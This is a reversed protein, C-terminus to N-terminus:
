CSSSGLGVQEKLQADVFIVKVYKKSEFETISIDLLEYFFVTSTQPGYSSQLMTALTATPTRRVVTRSNNQGSQMSFRLKM